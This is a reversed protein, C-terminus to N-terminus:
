VCVRLFLILCSNFKYFIFPPCIKDVDLTKFVGIKKYIQDCPTHTCLKTRDTPLCLLLCITTSLIQGGKM